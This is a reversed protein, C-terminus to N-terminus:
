EILEGLVLKAKRYQGDCEDEDSVVFTAERIFRDWVTIHLMGDELVSLTLISRNNTNIDLCKGLCTIELPIAVKAATGIIRRAIETEFQRVCKEDDDDLGSMARGKRCRAFVLGAGQSAEFIM